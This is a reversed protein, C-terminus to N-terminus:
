KKIVREDVAYTVGSNSLVYLYPAQVLMAGSVGSQAPSSQDLICMGNGGGFDICWQPQGNQTSRVVGSGTVTLASATRSATIQDVTTTVAATGPTFVVPVAATATYKATVVGSDAASGVIAGTCNAAAYIDASNTVNVADSTGPTRVIVSTEIVHDVCETRWTGITGALRESVAPSAPQTGSGGSGGGGSGGGGGCASLLACLAGTVIGAAIRVPAEMM